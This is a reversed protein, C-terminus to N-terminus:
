PGIIWGNVDVTVSYPGVVIPPPAAGVVRGQSDFVVQAAAAVDAAAPPQGALATGDSRNVMTPWTGTNGCHGAIPVNSPADQAAQYGTAVNITFQVNCGSAIAVNRALRLAAGIEEAYGRQAYPQTDFFKPAALAGLVGVIVIVTVLEIITFGNHHRAAHRSSPLSIGPSDPGRCEVSSSLLFAGVLPAKKSETTGSMPLWM